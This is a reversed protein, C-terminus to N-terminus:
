LLEPPLKSLLKKIDQAKGKRCVLIADDTEVIILDEVGCAAITRKQSFLINGHADETVARGRIANFNEDAPLHSSLSPWAGVDDWDFEALVAEVEPAQEMIAYDLSIKPLGTFHEDLFESADRGPYAEIFDALPPQESRAIELFASVQWIFIGANWSFDGEELYHQATTLDPKEIFRTVQHIASGQSGTVQKEGIELYGFGTAPYTPPIAITLLACTNRARELADSLQRRFAGTDKVLQDAPLLAMVAEPDQHRAIATALAAAPATDRKAPEAIIHDAPFEPLAERTAEVQEQNTLIYIQDPPVVGELRRLTEGLLTHESFLRLLQKPNKKRSLPWFREGSGGAMIFLFDM